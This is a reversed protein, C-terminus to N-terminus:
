PRKRLIGAEEIPETQFPPELLLHRHEIVMDMLATKDRRKIADMLQWHHKMSRELFGPNRYALFRSYFYRERKERVLHLLELLFKSPVAKWLEKHFKGNLQMFKVITKLSCYKQMKSTINELNVIDEQKMLDITQSIALRDLAGLVDLIERLEEFSITKVVARRYADVKVFGEANLRLVAERVPTRSVQFREAIAKENIRENAHLVGNIIEDKLCSYIFDGMTRPQPYRTLEKKNKDM